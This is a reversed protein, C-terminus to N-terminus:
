NGIHRHKRQPQTSAADWYFLNPVCFAGAGRATQMCQEFSVFGCDRGGDRSYQACWPYEIAAAAPEPVSSMAAFAVAAVFALKLGTM